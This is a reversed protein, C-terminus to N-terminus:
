LVLHLLADRAVGREITVMIWDAAIEEAASLQTRAIEGGLRIRRIDAYVREVCM